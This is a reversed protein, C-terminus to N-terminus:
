FGVHFWKGLGEAYQVIIPLTQRAALHRLAFPDVDAPQFGDKAIEHQDLEGFLRV